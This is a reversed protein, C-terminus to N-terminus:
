CRGRWRGSPRRRAPPSPGPKRCPVPNVLWGISFSKLPVFQRTIQVQMTLCLPPSLGVVHRSGGAGAGCVEAVVGRDFLRQRLLQAALPNPSPCHKSRSSSSSSAKSLHLPDVLDMAISLGRGRVRGVLRVQGSLRRLLKLLFRGVQM